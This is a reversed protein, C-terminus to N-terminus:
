WTANQSAQHMMYLKRRSEVSNWRQTNLPERGFYSFIEGVGACFRVSSPIARVWVGLTLTSALAPALGVAPTIVTDMGQDEAFLRGVDIGFWNQGLPLGFPAM